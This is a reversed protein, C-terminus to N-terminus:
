GCVVPAAVSEVEVVLVGDVESAVAVAVEGDSEVVAVGPEWREVVEAIAEFEPGM